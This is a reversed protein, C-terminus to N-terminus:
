IARQQEPAEVGMEEFPGTLIVGANNILVDVRGFTTLVKAVM